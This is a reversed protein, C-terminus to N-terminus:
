FEVCEHSKFSIPLFNDGNGPEVYEQAVLIEKIIIEGAGEWDEPQFYNLMKVLNLRFKEADEKKEFLISETWGHRWSDSVVLNQFVQYIKKTSIGPLYINKKSLMKLKWKSDGIENPEM